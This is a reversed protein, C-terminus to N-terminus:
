LVEYYMYYNNRISSSTYTIAVGPEVRVLQLTSSLVMGDGSSGSGNPTGIIIQTGVKIHAIQGNFSTATLNLSHILVGNVNAAATVIDVTQLTSSASQITSYSVNTLSEGGGGGFLESFSAM